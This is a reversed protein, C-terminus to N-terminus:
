QPENAEAIGSGPLGPIPIGQGCEELVMLRDGSRLGIGDIGHINCPQGLFCEKEHGLMPGEIKLRGARVM